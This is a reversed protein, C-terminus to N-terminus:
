QRYPCPYRQRCCIPRNSGYPVAREIWRLEICGLVQHLATRAISLYRCGISIRVVFPPLLALTSCLAAAWWCGLAVSHVLACCITCSAGLRYYIADISVAVADTRTALQLTALEFTIIHGLALVELHRPLFTKFKIWNVPNWDWNCNKAQAQFLDMPFFWCYLRVQNATQLLPNSGLLLAVFWWPRCNGTFIYVCARM